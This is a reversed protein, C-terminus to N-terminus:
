PQDKREQGSNSPQTESASDASPIKMMCYLYHMSRVYMRNGQFFPNGRIFLDMFNRSVVKSDPGALRFVSMGQTDHGAFLHGEAIAPAAYQWGQAATQIKGKSDAKRLAPPIEWTPRNDKFIAANKPLAPGALPQCYINIQTGKENTYYV